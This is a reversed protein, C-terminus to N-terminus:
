LGRRGRLYTARGALIHARMVSHAWVGDRAAIAQVLELHQDASRQLEGSSYQAFTRLILPAEILGALTKALRPSAAARQVARHFRDNLEGIRSLHGPGRRACEAVQQEALARLEAVLEPTAREAARRACIPELLSRLEFIEEADELEFAAVVAGHNPEFEVLGEAHLRRLAERVPTRSVGAAQAVETETLRSGAAYTGCLIGERVTVYAREAARM